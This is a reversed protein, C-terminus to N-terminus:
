AHHFSLGHWIGVNCWGSKIVIALFYSMSRLTSYSTRGRAFTANVRLDEPELLLM